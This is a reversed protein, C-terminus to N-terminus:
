FHYPIYNRLIKCSKLQKFLNVEQVYEIIKKLCFMIEYYIKCIKIQCNYLCINNIDNVLNKIHLIENICRLDIMWIDGEYKCVVVGCKFLCKKEKNM